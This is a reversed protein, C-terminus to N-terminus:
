WEGYYVAIGFMLVAIGAWTLALLSAPVLPVVDRQFAVADNVVDGRSAGTFVILYRLKIFAELGTSIAIVNMVLQTILPSARMGMAMMLLGFGVGLLLAIPLGTEDPRAFIVTFMVMAVGLAAALWNTARPFRNIVYFLLSGFLASGLYGAPIVLMRMGGATQAYGSTDLSVVFEMVRGGTLITALSHGAEHVYTTFLQLPFLVINLQPINWIIYVAVMAVASIALARRRYNKPKELVTKM